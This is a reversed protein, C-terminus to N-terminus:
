PTPEKFKFEKAIKIGDRQWGVLGKLLPGIQADTLPAVGGECPACKKRVLEEIVTTM